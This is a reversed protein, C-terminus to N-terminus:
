VPGSLCDCSLLTQSSSVHKKTLNKGWRGYEVCANTYYRKDLICGELITQSQFFASCLTRYVMMQVSSRSSLLELM